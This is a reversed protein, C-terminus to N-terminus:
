FALDDNVAGRGTPRAPQRRSQQPPPAQQQAQREEKPKCTLSIYRKGDKNENLWGALEMEILTESQPTDAILKEVTAIDLRLVGRYKPHKDTKAFENNFLAGGGKQQQQAMTLTNSKQYIFEADVDVRLDLTQMLTKVDPNIEILRRGKDQAVSIVEERNM